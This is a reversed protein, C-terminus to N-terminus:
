RIPRHGTCQRQDKNHQIPINSDHLIVTSCEERAAREVHEPLGVIVPQSRQFPNDRLGPAIAFHERHTNGCIPHSFNGHQQLLWRHELSLPPPKCSSITMVKDERLPNIALVQKLTVHMEHAEQGTPGRDISDDWFDTPMLCPRTPPVIDSIGVRLLRSNIVESRYVKRNHARSAPPVDEKLPLQVVKFADSRLTVRGNSVLM